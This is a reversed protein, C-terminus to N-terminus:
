ICTLAIIGQVNLSVSEIVGQLTSEPVVSVLIWDQGDVKSYAVFMGSKKDHFVGKEKTFKSLWTMNKM